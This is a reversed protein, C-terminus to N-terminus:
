SLTIPTCYSTLQLALSRSHSFMLAHTFTLSHVLMFDTTIHAPLASVSPRSHVVPVRSGAASLPGPLGNEAVTFQM